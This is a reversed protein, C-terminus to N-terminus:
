RPASGCRGRGPTAPLVDINNEIARLGAVEAVTEQAVQKLYYTPVHGWLRLVGNCCDCRVDEMSLYSNRRLCIEAIEGIPDSTEAVPRLLGIGSKSSPHFTIM